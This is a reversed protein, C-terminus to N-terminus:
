KNTVTIIRSRASELHGNTAIVYAKWQRGPVHDVITFFQNSSTGIFQKGGTTYYIRYGPAPRDMDWTLTISLLALFQLATKM